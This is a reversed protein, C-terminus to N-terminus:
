PNKKRTAPEILARQREGLFPNAQVGSSAVPDRSPSADPSECDGQAVDIFFVSDIRHPPVHRHGSWPRSTEETGSAGLGVHSLDFCSWAGVALIALVSITGILKSM